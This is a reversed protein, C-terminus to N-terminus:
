IDPMYRVRLANAVRIDTQLEALKCAHEHKRHRWALHASLEDAFYGIFEQKKTFPSNCSAKFGHKDLHVGLMHPGRGAAHDTLFSNTVADVFVCTAPSYIRCGPVLIDKDIQKGHWDQKEMWAKFRTFYIWDGDVSCGTYSPNKALAQPSYCRRLMDTWKKYFPCKILERNVKPQVVYDADNIGVGYVLKKMRGM